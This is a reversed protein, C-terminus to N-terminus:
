RPTNALILCPPNPTTLTHAAQVLTKQHLDLLTQRLHNLPQDGHGALRAQWLLEAATPLPLDDLVFRAALAQRQAAFEGPALAAIRAPLSEIFVEICNLLEAVPTAPSQVGFLLGGQGEIQRFDSFVAYGLQLEVRLRQYFAAQSLHNLLRWNAESALSSDPVPYFVLIAPESSLTPLPRWQRGALFRGPAIPSPLPSGPVSPLVDILANRHPPELGVTLGQWRAKAWLEDLAEATAPTDPDSPGIAGSLQRPLQALLERIPILAAPADPAQRWAQPAPHRLQALAEAFLGPLANAVGSCSLTWGVATSSLSLAFGAQAAESQLTALARDAVEFLAAPVPETFQWRLRLAAQENGPMPGPLCRLAPHLPPRNARRPGPRLFRNPPPARWHPSAVSALPQRLPHILTAARLQGLLADLAQCGAEDLGNAGPREISYRAQELAGAVLLRRQELRAYEERLGAWDNQAHFHKLWDLCLATVLGIAQRGKATLQLEIALLAQGAFRYRVNLAVASALRRQQCEDLLGGPHPSAIWTALFDLAAQDGAPLGECAFILQLTSEDTGAEVEHPVTMLAPPPRQAVAVGARLPRSAQEALARLRELPQPGVLCLTMQGTQYYRQYFDRLARQFAPNPVALSYRNGAHFGRLPHAANLPSHLWHAHRTKPDRQWAIFEAHLVERERRQEPLGLSPAALMDCLRHLGDAFAAPSLEFFFDTCRENTRANVQGGQQQVFAMLGTTGSPEAPVLFFLHELFHALGPWAVPADHSGAAVRLWAAARKLHPRHHLHLTLGNDLLLAPPSHLPM